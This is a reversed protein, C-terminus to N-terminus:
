VADDDRKHTSASRNGRSHEEDTTWREPRCCSGESDSSPLSAADAPLPELCCAILGDLTTCAFIRQRQSAAGQLGNVYKVGHQKLRMLCRAPPLYLRSLELHRALALLRKAMQEPRGEAQFVWPNGLAARGIMVADCGYERMRCLGVAHSTVDGNGVVPIAVAEKVRRIQSWDARGSFGQAWTRGHVTVASAGAAEMRRAFDPATLQQADLGARFKVTVPLRTADVVRRVIREALEPERMLACGAGKRVVKRVPCGMNIDILDIPLENLIAAAEAMLDPDAGFLQFGVPREAAVTRLLVQTGPQRHVIGHCSLMESMALGAGHERCLLRFAVDTYGALPALIFPSELTLPGFTIMTCTGPTLHWM